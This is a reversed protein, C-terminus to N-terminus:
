DRVNLGVKFLYDLVGLVLFINRKRPSIKKILLHLGGGGTGNRMSFCFLWVLNVWIIKITRDLHLLFVYVIFLIFSNRLMFGVLCVFGAYICGCFVVLM